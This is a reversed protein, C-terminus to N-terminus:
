TLSLLSLIVSIVDISFVTVLLRDNIPWEPADRYTQLTEIDERSRGEPSRERQIERRKDRVMKRHIQWFSFYLWIGIVAGYIAVPVAYSAAWILPDWATLSAATNPGLPDRSGQVHLRYALYVGALVLLSNVRTAFRGFDRFGGADDEHGPIYRLTIGGEDLLENLFRVLLVFQVAVVVIVVDIATVVLLTTPTGLVFPGRSVIWIGVFQAVFLVSVLLVAPVGRITLGFAKRFRRLFTREYSREAAHTGFLDSRHLETFLSETRRMGDYVLPGGVYVLLLFGFSYVVNPELAGVPRDYVTWASWAAGALLLALVGYVVGVHLLDVTVERLRDDGDAASFIFAVLAVIALWLVGMGGLVSTVVGLRGTLLQEVGHLDTAASQVLLLLVVGTVIVPTHRLAYTLARGVRRAWRDEEDGFDLMFPLDDTTDLPNLSCFEHFHAPSREPRDADWEWLSDVTDDDAAADDTDATGGAVVTDDTM